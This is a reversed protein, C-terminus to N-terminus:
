VVSKRDPYGFEEGVAVRVSPATGIIVYKDPNAIADLVEHTNDRETLAGVPCVNICQGCAVCPVKDLSREFASGIHTNFGRGNPGIVGVGQIKNCVAVCRRCLICKNNDRVLYPNNDDLEYKNTVGEYAVPDCNYEQSLKSLECNGNRVCSLCKKEHNSLILEITTKRSNRVKPTNTFVEMGDRVVTSCSAALNRMGKIEVVCVRCSGDNCVDKLYCLTPIDFGAARAADLVKTGEDVTVTVNNIKLTVQKKM